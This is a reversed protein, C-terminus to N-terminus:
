RLEARHENLYGWNCIQGSLVTVCLHVALQVCLWLQLNNPECLAIKILIDTYSRLRFHYLQLINKNNNQKNWWKKTLHKVLRTAWRDFGSHALTKFRNVRHWLERTWLLRTCCRLTLYKVRAVVVLPRSSVFCSMWCAMAADWMM